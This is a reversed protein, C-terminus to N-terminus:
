KSILYRVDAALHHSLCGQILEHQSRRRLLTKSKTYFERVRSRAENPLKNLAMMDNLADLQQRFITENPDGNTFLGCIVGQIAAFIVTGILVILFFLVTEAENQPAVQLICAARFSPADDIPLAQM